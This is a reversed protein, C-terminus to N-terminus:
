FMRGTRVVWYVKATPHSIAPIPPEPEGVFWGISFPFIMQVLFGGNKPSWCTFKGPQLVNAQTIPFSWFIFTLFKLWDLKLCVFTSIIMIFVHIGYLILQLVYFQQFPERQKAYGHLRCNTDTCGFAPYQNAAINRRVAEGWLCHVQSALISSVWSLVLTFERTTTHVGTLNFPRRPWADFFTQADLSHWLFLAQNSTLM